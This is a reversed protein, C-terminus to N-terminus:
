ADLGARALQKQKRVHRFWLVGGTAVLLYPVALLYLIGNNLGRGKATEPNEMSSEVNRKCMPCQAHVPPATFGVAMVLGLWLGFVHRTKM